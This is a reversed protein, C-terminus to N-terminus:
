ADYRAHLSVVRAPQHRPRDPGESLLVHIEPAHRRRRGRGRHGLRGADARAPVRRRRWRARRRGLRDGRAASKTYGVAGAALAEADLGALRGLAAGLLTVDLARLAPGGDPLFPELEDRRATLLAGGDRTWLGFRGAGGEALGASEFREILSAASVDREVEFLEDLRDLMAAVGDDGLGRVVRHTPLVTLAQGAADVFLTLVYDFAPDEECSRSMRREDRYRLATEYRHHGDAITLPGAAAAALLPAVAAADDGDAAM